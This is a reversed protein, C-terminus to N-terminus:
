ANQSITLDRYIRDYILVGKELSFYQRAANTCRSETELDNVLGMLDQLAERYAADSFQHLCVGTKTETLVAEVDGVNSNALCPKGCALFEGLKTPCSASKSLVPKIFFIGADISALQAAVESHRVAALTFRDEPIGARSLCDLVFDHETRNLVLLRATPQLDLLVRFCKAVEPFMYWTGASGVYGLTLAGDVRKKPKNMPRFLDLDVCTPIVEFRPKQAQLCDFTEMRRVGANTLSVVVDAGTLLSRELRKGLLYLLSGRRWLGGDVREDPWFGRMDFIFRSGCPKSTLMAMLGPIYSRAHIIEIRHTLALWVAVLLGCALDFVTAPVRPRKHYRLRVWHIGANRCQLDAKRLEEDDDLDEGREFSLLVIQHRGALRELYQLVQSQGLPQLIGTYTIYLIRAM